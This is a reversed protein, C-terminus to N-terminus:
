GMPEHTGQSMGFSSNLSAYRINDCLVIQENKDITENEKKFIMMKKMSRSNLLLKNTRLIHLKPIPAIIPM